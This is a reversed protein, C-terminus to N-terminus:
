SFRGPDCLAMLARESAIDAPYPYRRACKEFDAAAKEAARADGTGLRAVAYVTRIVTPFRRMQKVFRQMGKDEWLAKAEAGRRDLLACLIRDCLLLYRHIDVMGTDAALLEQMKGDAEAYRGEDMLRNCAFVAIAAVMSNKLDANEPLIFYTDPMESLRKGHTIAANVLLQQRFARMSTLDKRIAFANYGDNDVMGLRMPIGNIAAQMIGVIVFLMLLAAVYSHERLPIWVLFAILSLILNMLAGGLNYLLVPIRGDKEEPPVMLCQGGTGALSLRAFRLREGDHLLMLGGLRYSSFRYGSLLGFVLHGAEHVAIHFFFAAYLSLFFLFLFLIFQPFPLDYLSDPILQAAFIGCGVGLLLILITPFISGRRKNANQKKM